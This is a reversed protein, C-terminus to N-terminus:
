CKKAHKSLSEVAGETMENDYRLTALYENDDLVFIIDQTKHDGQNQIPTLRKISDKGAISKIRELIRDRIELRDGRAPFAKGSVTIKQIEELKEYM